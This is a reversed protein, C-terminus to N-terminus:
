HESRALWGTLRFILYLIGLTATLEWGRLFTDSLGTNTNTMYLQLPLVTALLADGHVDRLTGTEKTFNLSIWYVLAFLCIAYLSIVGQHGAMLVMFCAAVACGGVQTVFRDQLVAMFQQRSTQTAVAIVPVICFAASVLDVIMLFALGAGILGLSVLRQEYTVQTPPSSIATSQAKAEPKVPLFWLVTKLVLATIVMALLIEHLRQPMDAQTHQAFVVILVWNITPMFLKGIKVPTDARRRMQDFLVASISWVVFPHDSFVEYTILAGCAAVMTPAFMGVLGKWSYDKGKTLVIVPFLSLYVSADLHLLKGLLMCLCVVLSIRLADVSWYRAATRQGSKKPETLSVQTEDASQNVLTTM